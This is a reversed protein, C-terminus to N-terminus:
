GFGLPGTQRIVNLPFHRERDWDLAFPAVHDAAFSQTMERIARQDANLAFPGSGSDAIAEM